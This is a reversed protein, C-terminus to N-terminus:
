DVRIGGRGEAILDRSHFNFEQNRDLLLERREIREEGARSYVVVELIATGDERFEGSPLFNVTLAKVLQLQTMGALTQNFEEYTAIVRTMPWASSSLLESTFIWYEFLAEVTKAIRFFPFLSVTPALREPDTVKPYPADRAIVVPYIVRGEREDLLYAIRLGSELSVGRAVDLMSAAQIELHSRWRENPPLSDQQAFSERFRGAAIQRAEAFRARTDQVQELSLSEM